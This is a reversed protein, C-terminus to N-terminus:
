EEDKNEKERGGNEKVDEILKGRENRITVITVIILGMRENWNEGDEPGGRLRYLLDTIAPM